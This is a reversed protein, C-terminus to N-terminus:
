AGSLGGRRQKEEAKSQFYSSFSPLSVDVDAFSPLAVEFPLSFGSQTSMRGTTATASPRSQLDRAVPQETAPRARAPSGAVRYSIGHNSDREEFLPRRAPSRATKARHDSDDRATSRTKELPRATHARDDEDGKRPTKNWQETVHPDPGSSTRMLHLLRRKEEREEYLQMLMKSSAQEYNNDKFNLSGLFDGATETRTVSRRGPSTPRSSQLSTAASPIRGRVSQASPRPSVLASDARSGVTSGRASSPVSHETSSRGIQM